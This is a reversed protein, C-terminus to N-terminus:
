KKDDQWWLRKLKENLEEETIDGKRYEEFYRDMLAQKNIQQVEEKSDEIPDGYEEYYDDQLDLVPKQVLNFKGKRLKYFYLIILVLVISLLIFFLIFLRIIKIVDKEYNNDPFDETGLGKQFNKELLEKITYDYKIDQSVHHIAITVKDDDDVKVGYSNVVTGELVFTSKLKDNIYYQLNLSVTSENLFFASMYYKDNKKGFVITVDGLSTEENEIITYEDYSTHCNELFREEEISSSLSISLFALVITLLKIM